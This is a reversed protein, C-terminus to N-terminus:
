TVIHKHLHTHTSADEAAKAKELFKWGGWLFLKERTNKHINEPTNLETPKREAQRGAEHGNFTCWFHLKCRASSALRCIGDDRRTRILLFFQLFFFMKTSKKQTTSECVSVCCWCFCRGGVKKTSDVYISETRPPDPSHAIKALSFFTWVSECSFIRLLLFKFYNFLASRFNIPSFVQVSVTRSNFRERSFYWNLRCVQFKIFFLFFNSFTSFNKRHLNFYNLLLKDIIRLIIM